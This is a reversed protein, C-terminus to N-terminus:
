SRNPQGQTVSGSQGAVDKIRGLRRIEPKSWKRVDVAEKPM